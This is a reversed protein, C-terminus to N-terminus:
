SWSRDSMAISGGRASSASTMRSSFSSTSCDSCGISAAATSALVTRACYRRSRAPSLAHLLRRRAGLGEDGQLQEDVVPAPGADREEQAGALLECAAGAFDRHVQLVHRRDQEVRIRRLPQVRVNRVMRMWGSSPKESPILEFTGPGCTCM